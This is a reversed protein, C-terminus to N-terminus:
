KYEEKEELLQKIFRLILEMAEEYGPMRYITFAHGVQLFRKLTVENGARAMKLAFDEAEECLTDEEATIFLTKPLNRLRQEEMLILSAFPNRQEEEECYYLNYLRAREAPIAKGRSPKKAPDTFLDMPPYESLIGLIQVPSHNEKLMISIGLVFNGGASHGALIIRKPDIGLEEAHEFAWVTVDYCEELGQPFPHEPAVRYDVDLTKVGLICTLKRCFLEDNDTRKRIFGGGHFNIVLPVREGRDERGALYCESDGVRTPILLKEMNVPWAALEEPSVVANTVHKRTEQAMRIMEERSPKQVM